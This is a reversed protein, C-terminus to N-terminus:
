KMKFMNLNKLKILIIKDYVLIFKANCKNNTKM